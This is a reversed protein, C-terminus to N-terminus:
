ALEEDTEVSGAYTPPMFYALPDPDIERWRWRRKAFMVIPQFMSGSRSMERAREEAGKRTYFPIAPMSPNLDLPAICYRWGPKIGLVAVREVHDAHTM